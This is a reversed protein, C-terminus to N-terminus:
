TQQKMIKCLYNLKVIFIFKMNIQKNENVCLM